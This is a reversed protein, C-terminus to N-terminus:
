FLRAKHVPQKSELCVGIPGTGSAQNEDTICERMKEDMLTDAKGDVRQGTTKQVSVHM